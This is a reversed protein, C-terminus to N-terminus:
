HLLRTSISGIVCRTAVPLCVLDCGRLKRDFGLKFLALEKTHSAAHDQGQELSHTDVRHLCCGDHGEQLPPRYHGGVRPRGPSDRLRRRIWANTHAYQLQRPRKGALLPPHIASSVIACRWRSLYLYTRILRWVGDTRKRAQPERDPAFRMM